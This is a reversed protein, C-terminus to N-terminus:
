SHQKNKSISVEYYIQFVSIKNFDVKNFTSQLILIHVTEGLIKQPILPVIFLYILLHTQLNFLISM